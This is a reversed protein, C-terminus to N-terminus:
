ETKEDDFPTTLSTALPSSPSFEKNAILRYYKNELEPVPQPYDLCFSM